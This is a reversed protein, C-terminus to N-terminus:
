TDPTEKTWADVAEQLDRMAELLADKGKAEFLARMAGMAVCQAALTLGLEDEYGTADDSGQAQANYYATEFEEDDETAFRDNLAKGLFRMRADITDGM